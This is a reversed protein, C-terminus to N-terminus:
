SFSTKHNVPSIYATKPDCIYTIQVNINRRRTARSCSRKVFQTQSMCKTATKSDLQMALDNM